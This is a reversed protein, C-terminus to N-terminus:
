NSLSWVANKKGRFNSEEKIFLLLTGNYVIAWDVATPFSRNSTHEKEGDWIQLKSKPLKVKGSYRWLTNNYHKAHIGAFQVSLAESLKHQKATSIQM